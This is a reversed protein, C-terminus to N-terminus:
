DGAEKAFIKKLTRDMWRAETGDETCCGKWGSKHHVRDHQESASYYANCMMIPSKFSLSLVFQM